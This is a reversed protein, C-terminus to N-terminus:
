LRFRAQFFTQNVQEGVLFLALLFARAVFRPQLKLGIGDDLHAEGAVEQDHGVEDLPGLVITHRHPRATAGPGTRQHRIRQQNGVKIRKLVVQQEFAEQIGFADRHGVEVDVKALFPAVADNLVHFVAVALIGHRLDSGEAGHRGLPRHAVHPAHKIEAITKAIANGLQNWELGALQDRNGICKHLLRQQGLPAVLFLFDFLQQLQRLLDLADRTVDAHM